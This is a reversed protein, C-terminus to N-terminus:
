NPSQHRRKEKAISQAEDLARQYVDVTLWFGSTIILDLCDKFESLSIKNKALALLILV